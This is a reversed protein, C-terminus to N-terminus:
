ELTSSRNQLQFELLRRHLKQIWMQVEDKANSQSKVFWGPALFVEIVKGGAKKVREKLPAAYHNYAYSRLAEPVTCVVFVATPKDKLWMPHEDIFKFITKLPREYYVPAGIIVLNCEKPPEETVRRVLVSYGLVELEERMWEVIRATSGRKTDYIICARNM